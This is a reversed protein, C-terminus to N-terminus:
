TSWVEAARAEYEPRVEGVDIQSWRLFRDGKSPRMTRRGRKVKGGRLSLTENTDGEITSLDISTIGQETRFGTYVRGIVGCHIFAEDPVSWQLFIDGARPVERLLDHAQGWLALEPTTLHVPLPWASTRTDPDYYTYYASRLVFKSDWSRPAATVSDLVEEDLGASDDYFAFDPRPETWATARMAAILFEPNLLAM